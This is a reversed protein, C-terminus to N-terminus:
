ANGRVDNGVVVNEANEANEEEPETDIWDKRRRDIGQKVCSRSNHGILGCRGCQTDNYTKKMNSGCVPEENDDKRSNKKPRGAVRRVKPTVPKNYPTPELYIQSNM